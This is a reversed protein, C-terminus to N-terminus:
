HWGGSRGAGPSRARTTLNAIKAACAGEHRRRSVSAAPHDHDLVAPVQVQQPVRRHEVHDHAEEAHRQRGATGLDATHRTKARFDDKKVLLGANEVLRRLVAFAEPTLPMVDGDHLLQENAIDLSHRDFSLLRDADM